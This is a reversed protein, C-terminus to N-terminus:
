RGIEPPSVDQKGGAGHDRRREQGQRKEAIMNISLFLAKM